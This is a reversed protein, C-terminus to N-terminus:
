SLGKILSELAISSPGTIKRKGTEWARVTNRGSKPELRLADALQAQTMGLTKRIKKIEESTLYDM